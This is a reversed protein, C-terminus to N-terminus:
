KLEYWEVKLQKRRGTQTPAYNKSLYDVIIKENEGLNWLNQKEQMWRITRIWGDATMKNSTILKSSHCNTCNTKVVEWGKDVIFGTASDKGNIIKDKPLIPVNTSVKTEKIDFKYDNLAFIIFFLSCFCLMIALYAIYKALTILENALKNKEKESM